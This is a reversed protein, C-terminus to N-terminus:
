IKRESSIEDEKLRSNTLSTLYLFLFFNLIFPLAFFSSYLERHSHRSRVSMFCRKTPISSTRINRRYSMVTHWPFIEWKVNLQTTHHRCPCYKITYDHREVCRCPYSPSSLWAMMRVAIVMEIISSIHHQHPQILFFIKLCAQM